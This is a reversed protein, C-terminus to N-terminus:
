DTSKRFRLVSLTLMGLGLLAMASLPQWLVDLGVFYPSVAPVPEDRCWSAVPWVTLGLRDIWVTLGLRDVLSGSWKGPILLYGSRGHIQTPQVTQPAFDTLNSSVSAIEAPSCYFQNAFATPLGYVISSLLL